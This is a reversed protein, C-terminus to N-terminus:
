IIMTMDYIMLYQYENIIFLHHILEDDIILDDCIFCIIRCSVYIIIVDYMM